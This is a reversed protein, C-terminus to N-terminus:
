KRYVIEIAPRLNSAGTPTIAGADLLNDAVDTADLCFSGITGDRIGEAIEVGLDHWEGGPKPLPWVARPSTVNPYLNNGPPSSLGTWGMRIFGGQALHWHHAYMYVKCSEIVSGALDARIDVINNWGWLSTWDGDGFNGQNLNAPNSGDIMVGNRWTRSWGGIYKRTYRTNQSDGGGGSSDGGTEVLSPGIDKVWFQMSDGTPPRAEVSGTGPEVAFLLRLVGTETSQYVAQPTGTYGNAVISTTLVPSTLTPTSGNTTYRIVLRGWNGAIIIGSTEIQYARGIETEVSLETISKPSTSVGTGSSRKREAVIGRAGINLMAAVDNGGLSLSDTVSFSRASMDGTPNISALADGDPGLITLYNGGSAQAGFSVTASGNGDYQIFGSAPDLEIRSLVPDGIIIRSALVLTAALKDATVAGANIHYAEIAEALIKLATVANAKLHPTGISDPQIETETITEPFLDSGLLRSPTASVTLSPESLNGSTNVGVFRFWHEVYPLPTAPFHGKHRLTGLLNSPGNIFNPGAPSGYILIRDFGNPMPVTFTGTWEVDIGGKDPNLIPTNPRAGAPWEENHDKVGYSDPGQKGIVQRIRGSADRVVVYGDHITSHPLRAASQAQKVNHLETEIDILKRALNEIQSVRQLEEVEPIWTGDDAQIM